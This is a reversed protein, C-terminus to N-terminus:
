FYFVEFEIETSIGSRVFSQVAGVSNSSSNGDQIKLLEQKNSTITLDYGKVASNELNWSKSIIEKINKELVECTEREDLCKEKKQCKNILSELSLFELNDRCDTTFQLLSQVFSEAEFSEVAQKEPRSIMFGMFILIFIAVIIVILVFGIMEEQAKKMAREEPFNAIEGNRM